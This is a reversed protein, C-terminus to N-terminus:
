VDVSRKANPGHVYQIRWDAGSRIPFVSRRAVHKGITYSFTCLAAQDVADLFRRVAAEVEAAGM